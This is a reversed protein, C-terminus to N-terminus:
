RISAGPRLASKSSGFSSSSASIVSTTHPVSLTLIPAQIPQMIVFLRCLILFVNVKTHSKVHLGIQLHRISTGMTYPCVQVSLLRSSTSHHRPGILRRARKRRINRRRRRLKSRRRRRRAARRRSARRKARRRTSLLRRTMTGRTATLSLPRLSRNVVRTPLPAIMTRRLLLSLLLSREGVRRRGKRSSMDISSRVRSPLTNPLPRDCM